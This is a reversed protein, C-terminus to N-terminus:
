HLAPAPLGFPSVKAGAPAICALLRRLRSKALRLPTKKSLKRVFGEAEREPQWSKVTTHNGGAIMIKFSESREAVGWLHLRPRKAGLVHAVEYVARSLAPLSFHITFLSYHILLM